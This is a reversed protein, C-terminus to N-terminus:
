PRSTLTYTANSSSFIAYRHAALHKSVELLYPAVNENLYQRVPAGHAQAQSPLPTPVDAQAAAKGDKPAAPASGTQPPTAAHSGAAM